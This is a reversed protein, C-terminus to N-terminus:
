VGGSWPAASSWAPAGGLQQKEGGRAAGGRSLAAAAAPLGRLRRPRKVTDQTDAASGPPKVQQEKLVGVVRSNSATKEPTKKRGEKKGEKNKKKKVTRRLAGTNGPLARAPLCDARIVKAVGATGTRCDNTKLEMVNGVCISCPQQFQRYSYFYHWQVPFLIQKMNVRTSLIQRPSFVQCLLLLLYALGHIRHTSNHNHRPTVVSPVKKLIKLVKILKKKPPVRGGLIPPVPEGRLPHIFPSRSHALGAHGISSGPDNTNRTPVEAM